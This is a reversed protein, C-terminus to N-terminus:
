KGPYCVPIVRCNLVVNDGLKKKCLSVGEWERGRILQQTMLEKQDIHYIDLINKGVLEKASYGMARESARNAYQIQHCKDTIHVVDKCKDLSLQFAQTTTFQHRLQVEGELQLLENM